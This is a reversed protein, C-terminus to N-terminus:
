ELLRKLKELTTRARNKWTYKEASEKARVGMQTRKEPNGQLAKIAKAWDPANEPDCFIATNETLIEHFVPIESAIIPSGSALYDFMKMPNIVRAIEGGSSGSIKKGYPMVLIDAAAQYLPLCSNPIFGTIAVNRISQAALAQKWPAIDEQRGGVWLFNVEPLLRAIETLLEMGRGPYFHGSYGVTFGEKLGLQKRAEASQPLDSYRETETGNPAIQLQNASFHINFREEIGEALAKTTCLTLNKGKFRKYIRFLMPGNRGMPFDHFEMVTAKGCLRGFVAAQLAWTYVVDADWRAAESVAKLSFDYQKFRPSFPLWIVDFGTSLGYVDAITAWDSREFEPVWLRVDQGSQKLAHVVKMVQISNASKSPVISTSICAIKM